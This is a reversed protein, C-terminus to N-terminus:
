TPSDSLPHLTLKDTRICGYIYQSGYRLTFMRDPRGIRQKYPKKHQKAPIQGVFTSNIDKHRPHDGRDM